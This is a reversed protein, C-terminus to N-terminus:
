TDYESFLNGTAFYMSGLWGVRGQECQFFDVWEVYLISFGTINAGLIIYFLFVSIVVVWGWGGDPVAKRVHSREQEPSDQTTSNARQLDSHLSISSGHRNAM